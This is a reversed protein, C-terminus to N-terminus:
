HHGIVTDSGQKIFLNIIILLTDSSTQYVPKYNYSLKYRYINDDHLITKDSFTESGNIFISVPRSNTNLFDCTQYYLLLDCSMIVHCSTM